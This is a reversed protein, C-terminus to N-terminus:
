GEYEHRRSENLIIEQVVRASPIYLVQGKMTSGLHITPDYCADPKPEPQFDAIVWYLSGVNKRRLGPADKLSAYFRAALTQLTDGEQVVHEITDSLPRYTFPEPISLYLVKREDYFGDCLRYRSWLGPTYM